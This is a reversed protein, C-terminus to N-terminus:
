KRLAALPLLQGTKDKYKWFAWGNCTRRNVIAMGAASPTEYMRRDFRILGSSYVVAHYSKGKYEAYIGQGNRLLGKLPLDAGPARKQRKRKHKAARIRRKRQGFIRNRDVEQQQKVARQLERVLNKSRGLKGRVRNGRPEAIRVLLAEVERIHDTKRIMYLSFRDWKGKHKDRLHWKIRSRLDSALGVYYLKDRRYLAYVGQGQRILGTVQQPYDEFVGSSIKELHGTVIPRTVRNGKKKSM